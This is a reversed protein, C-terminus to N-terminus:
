EAALTTGGTRRAAHVRVADGFAEFVRRSAEDTEAWYEPHWQVGLAFEDTTSVRVAEITGDPATGEAVLGGALKGIAQRHLSNVEIETGGFVDAFQGGDVLRVGHCLGFREDQDDSVPARHDMRGDIDQIEVDLTGGLMVNLEQLGRCVALLPVKRELARKILPLATADRDTDYPEYRPDASKGYLSPHVNSRSGTALLGDAADLLGDIDVDDGLSPVIVPNVGSVRAAAQLYFANVAHWSYGDVPKVDATVLVMPKAASRTKSV